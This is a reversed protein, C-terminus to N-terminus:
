RWKLGSPIKLVYKFLKKQSFLFAEVRLWEYMGLPMSASRKECFFNNSLKINKLTDSLNKKVESEITLAFHYQIGRRFEQKDQTYIKLNFWNMVNKYFKRDM